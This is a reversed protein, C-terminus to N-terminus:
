EAPPINQNFRFLNTPDYRKKIQRLREWGPESYAERVRAQGENSLFGVFAGREGQDLAKALGTIWAEHIDTEELQEFMVAATVMVRRGRHGFATADEPVRAMAGGLVRLQTAAVPATAAELHEIIARATDRDVAHLYLSRTIQAFPSPPPPGEFLGAYRIPQVMDVVPTAIARLRAIVREGEDTPGAYAVLAMLMVQGHYEPPIFPMPPATIINMITSLEDPAAEAEAVFRAITEPTAPLIMMGGVVTDVEHLRFQFRTVVGFNGGGGRIAWFLDPHQEADTRVLSGDALVVDAALLNDITLGHKRVLYGIGGGLTIGGIGVSGTDGFGTALGHAGVAATYEGATLGTQAWATRGDVDIDLGKMDSLDIVIGGDSVGFGPISHGGSRVALELGTERALTVVHAVDSADAVRVIVAPRRDIARVFVTRAEDYAADTPAIVQGRVASRLQPVSLNSHSPV